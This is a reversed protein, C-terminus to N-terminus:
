DKIASARKVAKPRPKTEHLLVATSATSAPPYTGGPPVPAHRVRQAEMRATRTIAARGEDDTSRFDDVLTEEPETLTNDTITRSGGLIRNVDFGHGILHVLVQSNPMSGREYRGWQERTVGCLLAASQQTIGIREREERLRIGVQSTLM